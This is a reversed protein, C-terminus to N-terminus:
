NFLISCPYDPKEKTQKNLYLTMKIPIALPALLLLIMIGFLLYTITESLNLTDLAPSLGTPLTAKNCDQEDLNSEQM